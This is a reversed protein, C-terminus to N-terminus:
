RARRGITTHKDCARTSLAGMYFLWSRTLWREVGRGAFWVDWELVIIIISVVSYVRFRQSIHRIFAISWDLLNQTDTQINYLVSLADNYM